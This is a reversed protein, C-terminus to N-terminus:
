PQWEEVLGNDSTYVKSYPVAKLLEVARAADGPRLRLCYGCGKDQMYRPTRLLTCHIGGQQLLQQGRQAPTVSRFTIYNMRM